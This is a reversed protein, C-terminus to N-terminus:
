DALMSVQHCTIGGSLANRAKGPDTRSLNFRVTEGRLAKQRKVIEFDQDPESSWLRSLMETTTAFYVKGSDKKVAKAPWKDVYSKIDVMSNFEFDETTPIGLVVVNEFYTQGDVHAFVGTFKVTMGDELTFDCDSAADFQYQLLSDEPTAAFVPQATGGVMLISVFLRWGKHM